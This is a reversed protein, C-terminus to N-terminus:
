IDLTCCDNKIMRIFVDGLPKLMKGYEPLLYGFIIGFALGLFIQTSLGIGKKKEAM